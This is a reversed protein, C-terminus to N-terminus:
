STYRAFFPEFQVSRYDDDPAPWVPKSLEATAVLRTNALVDRVDNTISIQVEIVHDADGGIAEVPCSAQFSRDQCSSPLLSKVTGPRMSLVDAVDAVSRDEYIRLIVVARQRVPLARVADLLHDTIPEEVRAREPVIRRGRARRRQVDRGSLVCRRLYAGPNIISSWRVLLRTFAEQVLEEAESETDVLLYALRVLGPFEREYLKEFADAHNKLVVPDRAVPGHQDRGVSPSPETTADM